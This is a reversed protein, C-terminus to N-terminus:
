GELEAWRAYLKEIREQTAAIEAYLETLRASNSANEPKAADAQLTALKAEAAQINSEMTDLERKENFSLKRKKAPAAAAGAGSPAGSGASVDAAGASASDGGASATSSGGSGAGATASTGKGKRGDRKQRPNEERWAEWQLYDAFELIQPEGEPTREFALLKNSVQDLFYRDHTVLIVAGGFESLVEELVTMTALDLDNTPEDLVLINASQLMMQAVRLRAQEGGSLKEVPMDHQESRFLFRDLYSRAFVYQGRFNVYDGEPCINRLVSKKQDLTERHQEFYAIDIKDARKVEGSDPAETGLLIRILTSKGTGNPGLLGLRTKPTLILNLNEFLKRDGYSKSIGKAEILKQPNREAEQFEIGVKRSLNRTTLDDVEERLDGAREIRAKQKTQRAKAGRRLWETERRLTNKLVVERREQSRLFEDRQSLYDLYEGKVVLLGDPYRPDLDFIRNAVKQLFLRDHTITVTAFPAERLFEELWMIGEVDLHNTPEDLLLLDPRRVLERALAVRKKWGGSHAEVKDDPNLEFRSLWQDILSLEDPDHPDAVAETLTEYVTADPKFEPTQELYGIRLGRTLSLSGGDLSSKGAILRLLTSKGAGNPGILGIRDGSEIAFTLGRFLTRSAFAKELKHASVLIMTQTGGHVIKLRSQPVRCQWHEGNAQDLALKRRQFTSAM